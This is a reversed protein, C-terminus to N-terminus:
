RGLEILKAGGGTETREEGQHKEKAGVLIQCVTKNIFESITERGWLFTLKVFAPIRSCETLSFTSPM